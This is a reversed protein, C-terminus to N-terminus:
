ENNEGDDHESGNKRWKGMEDRANSVFEPVPAQKVADNGDYFQGRKLNFSFMDTMKDNMSTTRFVENRRLWIPEEKPPRSAIENDTSEDLDGDDDLNSNELELSMSSNWNYSFFQILSPHRKSEDEIGKAQNNREYIDDGSSGNGIAQHRKLIGMSSVTIPKSPIYRHLPRSKELQRGVDKKTMANMAITALLKSEEALHSQSLFQTHMNLKEMKSKHEKKIVMGNSRIIDHIRQILQENLVSKKESQVTSFPLGWIMVGRITASRDLYFVVGSGYVPKQATKKDRRQLFHNSLRRSMRMNNLSQNTWWFGHTSMNESDCQGVCLAHIGLSSLSSTSEGSTSVRDTRLIPLDKDQSFVITSSKVESNLRNNQFEYEDENHDNTYNSLLHYEKAMNRAAITGALSGNVLGEGAVTAHGTIHNPYKAVSGAAYIKSAANLESNVALRGDDSYCSIVSQECLKSWPKFTIIPALSNEKCEISPLVATGKQGCVSPAM